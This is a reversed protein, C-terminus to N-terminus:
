FEVLLYQLIYSVKNALTRGIDPQIIHMICKLGGFYKLKKNGLCRGIDPQIDHAEFGWMHTGTRGFGTQVQYFSLRFWQM